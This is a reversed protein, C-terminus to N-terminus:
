VPVLEPVHQVEWGPAFRACVTIGFEADDGQSKALRQSREGRLRQPKGPKGPNSRQRPWRRPKLLRRQSQRLLRKRNLRPLRRQSRRLLRRRNPKPLKKRNSRLLQRRRRPSPLGRKQGLRRAALVEAPHRLRHRDLRNRGAFLAFASAVAHARGRLRRAARREPATTAVAYRVAIAWCPQAAKDLIDAVDAGRSPDTAAAQASPGPTALDVLRGLRSAPRGARRGAAAKHLRALRRGTVRGALVRVGASGTEGLGALAGVWGAAFLQYPLWPGLGGTVLASVLITTAGLVFGYEAGFVYGGCLILLFIPSFGAIGTVVVARGRRRCRGFLPGNM